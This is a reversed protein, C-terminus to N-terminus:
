NRVVEFQARKLIAVVKPTPEGRDSFSLKILQATLPLSFLAIAGSQHPERHAFRQTTVIPDPKLFHPWAIFGHRRICGAKNEVLVRKALFDKACVKGGEM